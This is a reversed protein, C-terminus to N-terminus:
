CCCGVGDEGRGRGGGVAGRGCGVGPVHAVVEAHHAVGGGAPGLRQALDRPAEGLHRGVRAVRGVQARAQGGEVLAGAAAQAQPRGLALAAHRDHPRHRRRPPIERVGDGARRQGDHLHNQKAAAAAAPMSPNQSRAERQPPERETAGGDYRISGPGGREEVRGGRVLHEPAQVLLEGLALV